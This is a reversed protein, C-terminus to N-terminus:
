EPRTDGPHLRRLLAAVTDRASYISRRVRPHLNQLLNIIREERKQTEHRIAALEAMIDEYETMTLQLEGQDATHLQELMPVTVKRAGNRNLEVHIHDKHAHLGTYRRWGRGPKWSRRNWILYQVQLTVAHRILFNCYADAKAKQTPTNANAALDVARGTAHVSWATGGRIRRPNFIGLDGLGTTARWHDRLALAGPQPGSGPGTAKDYRVYM